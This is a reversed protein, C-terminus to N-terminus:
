YDLKDLKLRCIKCTFYLYNSVAIGGSMLRVTVCYTYRRSVSSSTIVYSVKVYFFGIFFTSFGDLSFGYAVLQKVFTVVHSM